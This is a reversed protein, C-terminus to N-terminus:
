PASTWPGLTSRAWDTFSAEVVTRVDLPESYELRGNERHVREVDALGVVPIYLDPDYVVPVGTELAERTTSVHALYASINDESLYEEGQMVRAAQMLAVVFRQAVQPREVIFKGSGVFAVTMLGPVLDEALVLAHGANIAQDAYPSALLGADISGNEFAAPMEPNGINVLEVDFITLGGRELAKAALYEGGSGPGGAAAVTKGALDALDSVSGEDVLAKAVLFKTPSDKMPELGGPAIIRLDMGQSWGNWMSVVIAVAGVDVTGESLFAIAETGSKIPELQVDLGQERFFGREEAVYLTAFKMIPVFAVRVPEPAVKLGPEQVPSPTPVGALPTPASESPGEPVGCTALLLCLAILVVVVQSMSTRVQM